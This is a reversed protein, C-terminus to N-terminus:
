VPTAVTEGKRYMSATCGVHLAQYPHPVTLSQQSSRMTLRANSGKHLLHPHTMSLPRQTRRVTPRTSWFSTDKFKGKRKGWFLLVVPPLFLVTLCIYLMTLLYVVSAVYVLDALYIDPHTIYNASLVIPLLIVTAIVLTYVLVIVNLMEFGKRALKRSQLALLFSIIAILGPYGVYLPIWVTGSHKSVCEYYVKVTASTTSTTTSTWLPPDLVAKLTQIAVAVLTFALVGFALTADRILRPNSIPKLEHSSLLIQYLRWTKMCITGIILIFGINILSTTITCTCVSEQKLSFNYRLVYLVTGATLLYFGAFAFQNLRYSSAKIPRYRRYIITLVQTLLTTILAIGIGVLCGVAMEFPLPKVTESGFESSIFVLSADTINLEGGRYYGIRHARGKSLRHIGLTRNTFGTGREFSIAGSVGSFQLNYLEEAVMKAVSSNYNLLSLRTNTANLALALAWTADYMPNAWDTSTLNKGHNKSYENIRAEYHDTYESYTEGSVTTTDNDAQLDTFLLITGEVATQMEDHSCTYTKGNYDVQTESLDEPLVDVLVWQYVPFLLGSHYAVCMVQGSQAPGLVTFLIRTNYSAITQHLLQDYLTGLSFTINYGEQQAIMRSLENYVTFHDQNSNTYLIGLSKWHNHLILRLMAEAYLAASDVIGFSFPYQGLTLDLGLHISVTDLGRLLPAVVLASDSCSPGIIGVLTQRREFAATIAEVLSVYTIPRIDCAGNSEIVELTYDGLLDTRNNIQEVALYVAPVIDPGDVWTPQLTPHNIPYSLVTLLHLVTKNGNAVQASTLIVLVLCFASRRLEAPSM